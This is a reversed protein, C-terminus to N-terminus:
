LSGASPGVRTGLGQRGDAAARAGSVSATGRGWGSPLSFFVEPGFWRNEPVHGEPRGEGEGWSKTLRERHGAHRQAGPVCQEEKDPM